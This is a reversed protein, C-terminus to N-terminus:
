RRVWKFKKKRGKGKSRYVQKWNWHKSYFMDLDGCYIVHFKDDTVTGVCVATKDDGRGYDVACIVAANPQM